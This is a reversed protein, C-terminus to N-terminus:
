GGTVRSVAALALRRPLVGVLAGALANARGSVVTAPPRRRDLARFLTDAVQDATQFRGVAPEESGVVDFFETRTAGPCLAIAHVGTGRLEVSLAETFSLVYAKTAGYVAMRPLPQFAATSAVNVVAGSGHALLDPLLARTLNTLATVNLAVEDDVRQPDEEVFPGHTGFGANNVLTGVPRDAARAAKVVETVGDPTTLDAPVVDVAVGHEARLRAALEELRDTRRAVLVLDAGRAALRAAVVAGIGSSAGTVVASSGHLDLTM